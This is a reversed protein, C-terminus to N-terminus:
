VAGGLIAAIAFEIDSVRQELSNPVIFGELETDEVEEADVDVPNGNDDLILWINKRNNLAKVVKRIKGIDYIRILGQGDELEVGIADIEEKTVNDGDIASISIINKSTKDYVIVM